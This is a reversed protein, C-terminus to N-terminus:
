PQGINVKEQLAPLIGAQHSPFLWYRQGAFMNLWTDEQELMHQVMKINHRIMKRQKDLSSFKLILVPMSLFFTNPRDCLRLLNFEGIIATM